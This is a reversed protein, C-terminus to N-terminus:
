ERNNWYVSIGASLRHESYDPGESALVRRFQYETRLATSTSVFSLLGTQVGVTSQTQTFGSVRDHLVGGAAGAFGVTNGFGSDDGLISALPLTWDAALSSEITKLSARQRYGLQVGVGLIGPGVSLPYHGLRGSINTQTDGDVSTWSLALGGEWAGRYLPQAQITNAAGFCVALAATLLGLTGM